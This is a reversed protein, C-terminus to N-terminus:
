SIRVRENAPQGGDVKGAAAAQVIQRAALVTLFADAAATGVQLRTVGVQANASERVSQAVGVTASRLGFDFPEWSVLAGLATGWVSSASNTGLVPGTMSSIVPQPLLVGFVNNRTARNMQGLFDTRPLYVTRALNIGAAAASVQEISARVAPYTDLAQNVAQELTLPAQQALARAGAALICLVTM